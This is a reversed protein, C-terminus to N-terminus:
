KATTPNDSSEDGVTAEHNDERAPFGVDIVPGPSTDWAIEISGTRGSKADSFNFMRSHHVAHELITGDFPPRVAPISYVFRFGHVDVGIFDLRPEEASSFFFGLSRQAFSRQDPDALYYLGAGDREVRQGFLRQLLWLNPNRAAVITHESPMLTGSAVFGCLVKLLWREILEGTIVRHTSETERGRLVFQEVEYFARFFHAAHEDLPSLIENHRKCLVNSAYASVPFHREGRTWTLGGIRIARGEGFETLVSSSIIHEGSIPGACDGLERAYCHRPQGDRLYLQGLGKREGNEYFEGLTDQPQDAMRRTYTVCVGCRWVM